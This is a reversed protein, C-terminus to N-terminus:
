CNKWHIEDWPHDEPASQWLFRFSEDYFLWEGCKLAIDRVVECNRMLKSAYQPAREIEIAIFTNLPAVWQSNTQAKKSSQAHVLM